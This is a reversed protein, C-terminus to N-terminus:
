ARRSRRSWAWLLSGWLLPYFRRTCSVFGWWTRKPSEPCAVPRPCRRCRCPGWRRRWLCTLALGRGARREGAGRGRAAGGEGDKARCCGPRGPVRRAGLRAREALAAPPGGPRSAGAAALSPVSSDAGPACLEGAGSGAPRLVARGRPPGRCRAHGARERSCLAATTPPPEPHSFYRHSPCFIISVPPFPGCYKPDRILGSRPARINAQQAYLRQM